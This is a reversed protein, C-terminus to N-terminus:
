SLSPPTSAARRPQSSCFSCTCRSARRVQETDLGDGTRSPTGRRTVIDVVDELQAVLLLFQVLAPPDVLTIRQDNRSALRALIAMVSTDIYTVDRTHVEVPMGLQELETVAAHLEANMGIDVEGTLVLRAGAGTALM